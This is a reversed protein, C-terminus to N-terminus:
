KDSTFFLFKSVTWNKSPFHISYTLSSAYHADHYWGGEVGGGRKQWAGGGLDAFQGLGM